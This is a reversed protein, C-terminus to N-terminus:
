GARACHATWYLQLGAMTGARRLLANLQSFTKSRTFLLGPQTRDLLMRLVLHARWELPTM